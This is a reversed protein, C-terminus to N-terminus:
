QTLWLQVTDRFSSVMIGVGVTVSLAVTLAAVALGTRSIGQRIGRLAMRSSIRLRSGLAKLVLSLVAAMFGPVLFCFGFIVLMLAVFGATLTGRQPILIVVGTAMLVLGLVLMYPIYAQFSRDKVARHQLTVPKSQVAHWAPLAAALLTVGLGLGAGGFVSWPNFLFSTVNLNFYLDDITRTVLTVLFRGLSIGSIVGAISAVTGLVAAEGLIVTYIERSSVGQCRLIGLSHQRQLVSLTMTNYILLAAVLLSLLSMALLNVHFAQTMQQLSDDRSATEVLAFQPPLWERIQRAQGESIILDISDLRGNRNLLRQAVGIDTFMLGETAAPNDSPFIGALYLDMPGAPSLVSVTEGVQLDLQAASRESLLVADSRTLATSFAGGLSNFRALGPRGRQLVAESLPDLGILTFSYDQSRLQGSLAPASRRIGLQTRLGTYVSDPIGESGGAIQHSIAGSVAAVSLSFAQRASNNALDVAVVMMVGLMIGLFSLWTQWPHQLAYRLSSRRLIPGPLKARLATEGPLIAM